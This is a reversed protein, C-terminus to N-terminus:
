MRRGQSILLSWLALMMHKHKNRVRVIKPFMLARTQFVEKHIKIVRQLSPTPKKQLEVQVM